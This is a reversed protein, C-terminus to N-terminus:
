NKQFATQESRQKQSQLGAGRVGFPNMETVIKFLPSM